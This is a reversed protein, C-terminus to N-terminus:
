TGNISSHINTTFTCFIHRLTFILHLLMSKLFGTGRTVIVPEKAYCTTLMTITFGNNKLNKYYDKYTHVSVNETYLGAEGLSGKFPNEEERGV